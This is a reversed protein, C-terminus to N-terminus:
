FIEGNDICEGLTLKNYESKKVRVSKSEFDQIKKKVDSKTKGYFEHPKSEGPYTKRFRQYTIGKKVVTDWSGSGKDRRQSRAM